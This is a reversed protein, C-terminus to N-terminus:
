WEFIGPITPIGRSRSQTTADDSSWKRLFVERDARWLARLNALGRATAHGDHRLPLEDVAMLAHRDVCWELVGDSWYEGDNARLARQHAVVRLQLDTDSWYLRMREDFGGLARLLDSRLAFCWGELFQITPLRQLVTMPLLRETRMRVGTMLARNEVLPGILREVFPGDAVVDNNLFVVFETRVHRLGFNWASTVGRHPQRVLLVSGPSKLFDGPEEPSGDDVVVIPVDERISAVCRRTLEFRGYQPIVITANM